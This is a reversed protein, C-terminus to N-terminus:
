EPMPYIGAQRAEAIFVKTVQSVEYKNLGTAAATVAQEFKARGVLATDIYIFKSAGKAVRVGVYAHGPVIVVVPEMGLNEFLSAFMVAGDICNASRQELSLRPMRVRQSVKVNEGFTTSSKVYSVGRKQLAMYIARAQAWTSREQAQESKWPEYGPLRRGIMYEKAKALVHEVEKDHPTVWSAIFPAYKFRAGWFMDESSRLRVQATSSYVPRGSLDTIAVQATAAMIQRNRFFRPLFSPAFTFTRTQGAAVEVIQMEKDSWGPIEVTLHHRLVADTPNNVSITIVGATRKEARQMAAFNAFMPFVEGDLGAEVRYVPQPRRPQQVRVPETKDSGAWAPVAGFILAGLLGSRAIKKFSIKREM